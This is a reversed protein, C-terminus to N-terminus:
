DEFWNEIVLDEYGEFDALNRTVLTLGNAVAVAAIFGDLVPRPKGVQELRAHEEALWGAAEVDVDLVVALGAVDEFHQELAARRKGGPLLSIGITDRLLVGFM